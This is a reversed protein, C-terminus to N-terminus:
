LRDEESIRAFHARRIRQVLLTVVSGGFAGTAICILWLFVQLAIPACAATM